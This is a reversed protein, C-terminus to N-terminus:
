RRMVKTVHGMKRGPRTERKGYLQLLAEPDALHEAWSEVAEGILNIMVIDGLRATAGLPLGCIARIHQEFQSTRAGGQTWHGSNHVRPAMENIILREEGSHYDEVVFMEVALVGIYDLADAIGHVYAEAKQATEPRLTAPVMTRALIHNEHSNECPEYAAFEGKATRAAVISIERVFNVVGELICPPSGMARYIAGIDSGERIMAQGKGDYGLRRSKLISPRGIQAVARALEGGNDVPQFPATELGLAKFFRKEVLRDQTAVLAEAGPRLPRLKELFHATAAPVNEFEYTVIDVEAAFRQLAREDEYAAKTFAASVDRAPSDAEPAYIHIRYGLGAAALALMRALQGGGLIGITAGPAVIM